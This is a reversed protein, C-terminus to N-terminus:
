LVCVIDATSIKVMGHSALDGAAQRIQGFGYRMSLIVFM